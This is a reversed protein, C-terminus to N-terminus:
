NPYIMLMADQVSAQIKEIVQEYPLDYKKHQRLAENIETLAQWAYGSHISKIAEEEDAFTASIKM